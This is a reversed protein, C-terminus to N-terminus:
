QGSLLAELAVLQQGALAKLFASGGTSIFSIQSRDSMKLIAASTDGGGALTVGQCESMARTVLATGKAFAPTEFEGLPGNWIITRCRSLVEGYWLRTAPGIDKTVTESTLDQAVTTRAKTLGGGVPLTVADMPVFLKAPCRRFDGVLKKMDEAYGPTLSLHDIDHGFILRSFADGMLGGLLVYDALGMFKALVPLKAEIHGGGIVAALPRAPSSLARNLAMLENKLAFGGVAQDMFRTITTMSAYARHCVGFADNVYIDALEALQRAFDPDAATEGPKFRLNELLVVRGPGIENVLKLTEPGVIDPAFAVEVEWSRSLRRALPAFSYRQDPTGREELPDRMHSGIVVTAGQDLLYNVTPLVARLRGDDIMAGNEDTPVNLDARVFVRKGAPNLSGLFPLRSLIDSLDSSSAASIDM